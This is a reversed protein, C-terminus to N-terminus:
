VKPESVTSKETETGTTLDCVKIGLGQLDLSRGLGLVRVGFDRVGM